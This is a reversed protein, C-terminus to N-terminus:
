EGQDPNCLSRLFLLYRRSLNLRTKMMMLITYWLKFRREQLPKGAECAILPQSLQHLMQPNPKRIAMARNFAVVWEQRERENKMVLVYEKEAGQLVTLNIATKGNLGIKTHALNIMLIPTNRNAFVVHANGLLIISVINGCLECLGSRWQKWSTTLPRKSLLCDMLSRITDVEGAFLIKIDIPLHARRYITFRGKPDRIDFQYCIINSCTISLIQGTIDFLDISHDTENYRIIGDTLAGSIANFQAPFCHQAQVLGGDDVM